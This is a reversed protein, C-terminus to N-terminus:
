ASESQPWDKKAEKLKKWLEAFPGKEVSNKYHKLEEEHSLQKTDEYLKEQVQRKFELCDFGPIIEPKKM